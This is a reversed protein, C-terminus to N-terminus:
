LMVYSHSFIGLMDIYSNEWMAKNYYSVETGVVQKFILISCSQVLAAAVTQAVRWHGHSIPYYKHQFTCSLAHVAHLESAVAICRYIKCMQLFVAM